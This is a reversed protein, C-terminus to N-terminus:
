HHVRWAKSSNCWAFPRLRSIEFSIVFCSHRIGFVFRFSLIQFPACKSVFIEANPESLMRSNVKTM